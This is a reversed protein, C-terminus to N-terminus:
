RAINKKRMLAEIYYYDAYVLPVNIESLDNYNGVSQDLIFPMNNGETFKYHDTSLSMLIQDAVDTYEQENEPSYGALEYLASATITAASVDRYTEPQDPADFDWYPIKDEPLNPHNIIYDAIAKAQELFRVNGTERYTMTYGYLGWAQGRAWASEHSYGQHTNRKTVEGTLTDYSVVHFSSNDERFHNRMTTEAHDVAIHYYISDKTERTAWFLLELNMMNDIIVPYDWKDSNHDWSRICGVVPNYRTILTSASRIMIHRYNENGTLRYGNGFSCYIKFGMDHTSGNYQEDRVNMTYHHAKQSWYDDGTYEYMMWLIGPFFGSTWNSVPGYVIEGEEVTRPNVTTDNLSELANGLKQSATSLEEDTSINREPGSCGGAYLIGALILVACITRM